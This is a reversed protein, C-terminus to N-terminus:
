MPPKAPPQWVAVLNGETDIYRASYGFAGGAIAFKPLHVKGGNKEVEATTKDVDGVRLSALSATKALNAEDAVAAVTDPSSMKVFAGYLNGKRFMHVSEVGEMYGPMASEAGPASEWGFVNKYFAFARDPDTCPVEYWCITGPQM